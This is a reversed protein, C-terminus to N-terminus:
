QVQDPFQTSLEDGVDIVDTRLEIGIGVDVQRLVRDGGQDAGVADGGSGGDVLQVGRRHRCDVADLLRWAWSIRGNSM